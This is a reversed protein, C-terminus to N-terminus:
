NWTLRLRVANVNVNNIKYARIQVREAEDSSCFLSCMIEREPGSGACFDSRSEVLCYCGVLEGGM